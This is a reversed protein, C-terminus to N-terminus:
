DMSRAQPVWDADGNIRPQAQWAGGVRSPTPISFVAALVSAAFSVNREATITPTPISFLASLATPFILANVEGTVTPAPTTFTAELVGATVSLNRIATVTPAQISFTGELVNANITAGIAVSPSPISFLAALVSPSVLAEGSISPAPASFTASVVSPSVQADPTIINPAPISFTATLAQPPSYSEDIIETASQVSFTATLVSSAVSAGGSETPAQTSFTAALVSPSATVSVSGVVDLVIHMIGYNSGNAGSSTDYNSGNYIRQGDNGAFDPPNDWGGNRYYNTNGLSGTRRLVIWYKTRASLTVPTGFTITYNAPSTTLTSGVISGVALDTGDPVGGSDAQIAVEVSDVPSAVKQLTVEVASVIGGGVTSFWDALRQQNSPSTLGFGSIDNALATVSLTYSDAVYLGANFGSPPTYTLASAGFNATVQQTNQYSSVYAYMARSTLGSSYAVGQSVNNKFFEVTGSDMDLAIGVVDGNTFQAGYASGSGNHWKFKDSAGASYFVWAGADAPMEASGSIHADRSAIGIALDNTRVNITVEWYWKGSSVGVDSRVCSWGDSGDTAITGTGTLTLNAEKDDPNWRAYQAM